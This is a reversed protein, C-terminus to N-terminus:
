NNEHKRKQKEILENYKIKAKEYSMHTFGYLGWDRPSPYGSSTVKKGVVSHRTKPKKRIIVEYDQESYKHIEVSVNNTITTKDLLENGSKMQKTTKNKEQLQVTDRRQSDNSNPEPIQVKAVIWDM